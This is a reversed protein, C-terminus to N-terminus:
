PPTFSGVPPLPSVEFGALAQSGLLSSLTLLDPTVGSGVTLTRIFSFSTLSRGQDARQPNPPTAACNRTRGPATKTTRM